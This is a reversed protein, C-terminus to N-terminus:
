AQTPLPADRPPTPAASPLPPNLVIGAACLYLMAILAGASHFGYARRAIVRAKNNIGETFGNTLRDKIYALVGDRHTRITRAVRVFPALKSRSAWSLWADLAAAARKPQKYDLADALAEKLLYARYLRKNRKAVTKLRTREDHDLNDHRKLLVFRTRKIAHEDETGRLARWLERRVEDVADSALRQVHFRDFVIQVHPAHEELAKIYGGAMDITATELQFGRDKGLMKFFDCLTEAGRGKGAWVVRQADHDVVITAYRHRKRYSFEDIGIRRLGDLARHDQHREVVRTIINGVTSWAIGMLKTVSTKDMTQALYATLEEFQETFLSGQVAWPVREVRVGDCRRCDVRRLAYELFVRMSGLSLSRWRRMQPKADYGPARRGCQGCRPHRWRPRVTVILCDAEFRVADVLLSTVGLVRRFLTTIRV